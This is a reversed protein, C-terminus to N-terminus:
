LINRRTERGSKKTWSMNIDNPIIIETSTGFILDTSGIENPVTKPKKIRLMSLEDLPSVAERKIVGKLYKSEVYIM